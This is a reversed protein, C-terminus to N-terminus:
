PTPPSEPLTACSASTTAPPATPYVDEPWVEVPSTVVLGDALTAEVFTAAWGSPPTPVDVSVRQSPALTTASYRIGCAFRFDRDTSNIATWQVVQVPQEDLKMTLVPKGHKLRVRSGVNPLPVDNRVRNIFPLIAGPLVSAIGHGSNPVARVLTERPLRDLYQQTNDPAFFDDGSANLLYKPIRLRKRGQVDDLYSLPDEMQMLDAFAPTDRQDLVGAIWISNFAVPWQGGYIRLTRENMAKAGLTDISFPVIGAVRDDALAALWTAWGQKSGGVVIFRHVGQAQLERGALDMARVVAAAMPLHISMFTAGEGGQMALMWARATNDDERRYVGDDWLLYQNPVDSVEVVIGHTQQAVLLLAPDIWDSPSPTGGPRPNRTGNGVILTATDGSADAPIVIRVLHRWAAPTTKGAPSWDQSHLEFRLLRTTGITTEGLPVYDLPQQRVGETYCELALSWDTTAGGPCHAHRSADQGIASAPLLIAPAMALLCLMLRHAITM